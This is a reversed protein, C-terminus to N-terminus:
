ISSVTVNAVPLTGKFKFVIDDGDLTSLATNNSTLTLSDVYEVGAIQSVQSILANRRILSEFPYDSPSVATTLYSDVASRVELESYGSVIKITTDITVPALIVDTIFVSLGAIARSRVDDAIVAKDEASLSAGTASSIFLTIAGQVDSADLAVQDLFEVKPSFTPYSITATETSGAVRDYAIYPSLSTPDTIGTVDFSGEYGSKSTDFVRIASVSAAGSAFPTNARALFVETAGDGEYSFTKFFDTGGITEPVCSAHVKDPSSEYKVNTALFQQLRTLDYCAVRYADDYSTLIYNTVQESTALTRSLSSLYTSARRFFSEDDETETGQVFTGSFTATFLSAIPTLISLATSDPIVPKEGADVAVIQVVGTTSSGEPITTAATTEYVHTIVGEDTTESFSVQTGAPILLGATDITTFIVGGSAFTAEDRFFGMLRLIGEMLGNPLRNVAGNVLAAVYSMSELMADEVTGVRPNFEPLAMLAYDRAFNYVDIPQLDNVTLDIYEAFDPSTM